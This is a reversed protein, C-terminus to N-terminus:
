IASPSIALISCTTSSSASPGASKAKKSGWISWHASGRESLVPAAETHRSKPGVFVLLLLIRIAGIAVRPVWLVWTLVKLLWSVLRAWRDALKIGVTKPILEGFTVLLPVTLVTATMAVLVDLSAATLGFQLRPVLRFVQAM